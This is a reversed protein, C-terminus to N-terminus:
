DPHIACIQPSQQSCAGPGRRLLAGCGSPRVQFASLWVWGATCFKEGWLLGQSISFRLRPALSAAEMGLEAVHLINKKYELGWALQRVSLSLTTFTFFPFVTVRGM